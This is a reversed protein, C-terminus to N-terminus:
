ETWKTLEIKQSKENIFFNLNESEEWNPYKNYNKPKFRM